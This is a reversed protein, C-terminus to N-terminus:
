LYTYTYATVFLFCHVSINSVFRASGSHTEILHLSLIIPSIMHMIEFFIFMVVLMERSASKITKLFGQTKMEPFHSTNEQPKRFSVDIDFNLILFDVSTAMSYRTVAVM